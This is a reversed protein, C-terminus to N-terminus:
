HSRGIFLIHYNTVVAFLFPHNAIFKLRPESLRDGFLTLVTGSTAETGNENVDIFTKHLVKSIYLKSNTMESFDATDASFADSLGMQQLASSLEFEEEIRFKPLELHVANWTCNSILQLLDEGSVSQEFNLLGFKNKPLIIYMSTETSKYPLGIVQVYENEYYPFGGDKVMMEVQRHKHESEHFNSIKTFKESFANRWKAKFFVANVVTMLTSPSFMKANVLNRIKSDTKQEIWENIEQVNSLVKAIEKSRSFDVKEMMKPYNISIFQVFHALLQVDDGIFIKNACKLQFNGESDENSANSEFPAFYSRLSTDSANKALLRKLQKRTEGGAGGYIVALTSAVSLPSIVISKQENGGTKLLLLAFDAQAADIASIQEPLDCTTFAFLCCVPIFIFLFKLSLLPQEQM